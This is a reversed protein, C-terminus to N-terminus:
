TPHICKKPSWFRSGWESGNYVQFLWSMKKIWSQNYKASIFFVYIGLIAVPYTFWPTIKINPHVIGKFDPHISTPIKEEM